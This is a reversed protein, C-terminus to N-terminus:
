LHEKPSTQTCKANLKIIVIIIIIIVLEKNEKTINVVLTVLQDKWGSRPKM